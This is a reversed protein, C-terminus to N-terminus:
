PGNQGLLRLVGTTVAPIYTVVLVTAARLLLFPASVRYIHPLPENFRTSALILNLGMPPLLFGLEMNALFVVGMHVPDIGYAVALPAILPALIVIASFIELVSGLVLLAANLALLFVVDSHIHTQTWSLVATPIEADVLYNTLGMAMGLLVLVAGVLAAARLLTAPLDRSFQLDHFVFSQSVVALVMALAAAELLTAIGTAIALLILLPISLEWKAQWVAALIERITFPQRPADAKAGVWAAYISVVVVLLIGPVLGALFMKEISLQAVVAYLIVPLSPPFLLGMSGSSTLLGLSFGRPYKEAILMPLLLGGLALITVGSGGTLATFGACLLSVMVAMGGPAWGAAARAVRLLRKSAGGEALVYGAATLLPIVPLSPSSVLRFAEVPVSAIPAGAAFFLAMAAGAMAVFVPAGLGLGLLVAVLAVPLLHGGIDPWLGLLPVAATLALALTRMRASDGARWAFRLAMLVLAVPMILESWWQPVGGPLRVSMGRDSQLMKWSAVALVLCVAASLTRGYFHAWKRLRPDRILDATALALHKDLGAALLAGLFGLWLTMHHSYQIAGTININFLRRALAEVSPLVALAAFVALLLGREIREITRAINM